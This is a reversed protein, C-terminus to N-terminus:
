LPMVAETLGTDGRVAYFGGFRDGFVWLLPCIVLADLWSCCVSCVGSGARLGPRRLDSGTARPAAVIAASSPTAASAAPQPPEFLLLWVGADLAEGRLSIAWNRAYARHMRLWWTGFKGSGVVLPPM